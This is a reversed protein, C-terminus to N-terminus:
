ALLARLHEPGQDHALKWSRALSVNMEATIERPLAHNHLWLNRCHKRRQNSCACRWVAEIHGAPDDVFSVREGRAYGHIAHPLLIEASAYDVGLVVEPELTLLRGM